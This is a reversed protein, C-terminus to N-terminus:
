TLSATLLQVNLADVALTLSFAPGDSPQVSISISLSEASANFDVTADCSDVQEDKRSEKEIQSKLGQLERNTMAKSLFSRLDLGDNPHFRLLGRPTTFRRYLREALAPLGRLPAFTPDLSPYTVVDVGFRDQPLLVSSPLQTLLTPSTSRPM